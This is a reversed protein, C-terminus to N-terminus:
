CVFVLSAQTLHSQTLILHLVLLLELVFKMTGMEIQKVHSNLRHIEWFPQATNKKSVTTTFQNPSTM